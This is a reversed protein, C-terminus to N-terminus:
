EQCPVAINMELTDQLYPLSILYNYDAVDFVSDPLISLGAHGIGSTTSNTRIGNESLALDWDERMFWLSDQSEDGINSMGVIKGEGVSYYLWVGPELSFSEEYMVPVPEQVNDEHCASLASLLCFALIKCIKGKNM